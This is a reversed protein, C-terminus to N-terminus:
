HLGEDRSKRKAIKLMERKYWYSLGTSAIFGLVALGIYIWSEASIGVAAAAGSVAYPAKDTLQEIPNSV